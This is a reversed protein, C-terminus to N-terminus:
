GPPSRTTRTRGDKATWTGTVHLSGTVPVSKCGLSALTVDMDGSLTLCSSDRDLEWRRLRQLANAGPLERRVHRRKANSGGSGQTGGTGNNQLSSSSCGSGAVAAVFAVSSVLGILRIRM